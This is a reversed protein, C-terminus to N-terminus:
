QRVQKLELLNFFVCGTPTSPFKCDNHCFFLPPVIQDLIYYLKYCLYCLFCLMLIVNQGSWNHDWVTTVHCSVPDQGSDLPIRFTLIHVNLRSFRIFVKLDTHLAFRGCHPFFTTIFSVRFTSNVIHSHSSSLLHFSLM